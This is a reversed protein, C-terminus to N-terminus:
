RLAALSHGCGDPRASAPRASLQHYRHAYFMAHATQFLATARRLATADIGTREVVKRGGHTLRYGRPPHSPILTAIEGKTVYAVAYDHEMLARGEDEPVTRLDRGFFPSRYTFGLLGLLTPGLDMSSGLTAVKRPAIHRPSFYLIPVRYSAVPVVPSGSVRPGHDGVFVFVTDDFWRHSKARKLFDAFAWDAYAASNEKRKEAVPRDIRGEPYTYPRHNSVTLLSLFVPKGGETMRDLRAMAETFLYEDASGWATTFGTDKIDGQDLVEQFGIGRWYAGMNDFVARGGYLFATRYGFSRFVMPLSNMGTSGARRSTSIGPIPPFSTLIAELGRVTRNGTAYVNSLFLGQKLLQQMHPATVGHRDRTRSGDIFTMGFSEEIVLVVNLRKAGRGVAIRETPINWCAKAPPGDQATVLQRVLDEAENEPMTPYLGRYESDNTVAAHVFTAIGNRALQSVDRAARSPEPDLARIGFAVIFAAVLATSWTGASRAPGAGRLARDFPRRFVLFYLVGTLAAVSLLLPAMDYSERINGIVERPFILYFVAIGNLRSEFEDWFIYEAFEIALLLALFGAFAIKALARTWRRDLFAGGLLLVVLFPSAALLGVSLDQLMGYPLSGFLLPLPRHFTDATYVILVIREIAEILVYALVAGLWFRARHPLYRRVNRCYGALRTM